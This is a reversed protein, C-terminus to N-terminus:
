GSYCCCINCVPASNKSLQFYGTHTQYSYSAGVLFKVSWVDLAEKEVRLQLVYAGNHLCRGRDGVTPFFVSENECNELSKKLTPIVSPLWAKFATIHKINVKGAPCLQKPIKLNVEEPSITPKFVHEDKLAARRDPIEYQPDYKLLININHLSIVADLEKSATKVESFKKGKMVKWEKLDCFTQEVIVRESQVVHSASV